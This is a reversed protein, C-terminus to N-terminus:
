EYNAMKREHAETETQAIEAQSKGDDQHLPCHASSISAEGKRDMVVRCLCAEHEHSEQDERIIDTLDRQLEM